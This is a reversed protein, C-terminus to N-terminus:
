VTPQKKYAQERWPTASGQTIIADMCLSHGECLPMM